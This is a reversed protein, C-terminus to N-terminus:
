AGSRARLLRWSWVALVAALLGLGIVSFFYVPETSLRPWEVIARAAHLVAIVGFLACTSVLYAKM